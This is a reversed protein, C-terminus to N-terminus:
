LPRPKYCVSEFTLSSPMGIRCSATSPQWARQGAQFPIMPPPARGYVVEFPTTKLATQYSTNFCYEAWPLWRLWSRPRDKVLCRLHMAIIHNSVESQGDKELPHTHGISPLAGAM